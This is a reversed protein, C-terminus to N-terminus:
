LTRGATFEVIRPCCVERGKDSIDSTHYRPGYESYRKAKQDSLSRKPPDRAEGAQRLLGNRRKVLIFVIPSFDLFVTAPKRAFAQVALGHAWPIRKERAMDRSKSYSFFFLMLSTLSRARNRIFSPAAPRYRYCAYFPANHSRPGM